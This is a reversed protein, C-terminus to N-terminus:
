VRVSSTKHKTYQYWLARARIQVKNDVCARFNPAAGLPHTWEDMYKWVHARQHSHPMLDILTYSRQVGCGVEDERRAEGIETCM